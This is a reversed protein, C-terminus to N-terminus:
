QPDSYRHEQSKYSSNVLQEEQKDNQEKIKNRTIFILKGWDQPYVLINTERYGTMYNDDKWRNTTVTIYLEGIYNVRGIDDNLQVLEGKQFNYDDLM